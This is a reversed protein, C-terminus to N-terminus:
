RTDDDAARIAPVHWPAEPEDVIEGEPVAMIVCRFELYPIGGPGPYTEQTHRFDSIRDLHERKLLAGIQAELALRITAAWDDRKPDLDYESKPVPYLAAVRKSGAPWSM